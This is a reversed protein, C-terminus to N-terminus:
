EAKLSRSMLARLAKEPSLNQYLIRYVVETIPTEVGVSEALQRASRCTHVGEAVMGLNKLVTELSHGKALEMGVTLNRSLSGKCTLILDGMGALGAFTDREAGLAVGLRAMESLGRTILGAISNHGLNLGLALGSAIAIVNKLAGCLEVGVIDHNRYMRFNPCNLAEQLKKLRRENIGALVVTTPKDEAVERAFSPGSLTYVNAAWSEGLVDLVLPTPLLHTDLEVGKSLLLLDHRDADVHDKIRELFGRYAQLPVALSIVNNEKLTTALDGTVRLNDPFTIDSLYRTNRREAQYREADEPNRVWMTVHHGARAWLIAM